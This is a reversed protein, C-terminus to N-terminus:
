PCGDQGSPRSTSCGPGDMREGNNTLRVFSCGVLTIGDDDIVIILVWRGRRAGLGWTM